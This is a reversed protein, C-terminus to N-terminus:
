LAPANTAGDPAVEAQRYAVEALTALAALDREAPQYDLCRSEGVRRWYQGRHHRLGDNTMMEPEAVHDGRDITDIAEQMERALFFRGLLDRDGIADNDGLGVNGVCAIDARQAPAEGLEVRRSRLQLGRRVGREIRIQQQGAIEVIEVAPGLLHALPQGDFVLPRSRRMVAMGVDVPMAGVNMGE